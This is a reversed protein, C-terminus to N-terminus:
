FLVKAGVQIISLNFDLAKNTGLSGFTNSRMSPIQQYSVCLSYRNQITGTVQAMYGINVLRFTIPDVSTNPVEVTSNADLYFPVGVDATVEFNTYNSYLLTQIMPKVHIARWTVFTPDVAWKANTLGVDLQAGFLRTYKVKTSIGYSQVITTAAPIDSDKLQLTGTGVSAEVGVKFNRGHNFQKRKKYVPNKYANYASIAQGPKETYALFLPGGIIATVFKHEDTGELQISIVKGKKHYYNVESAQLTKRYRKYFFTVQDENTGVKYILDVDLTDGSKKIIYVKPNYKTQCNAFAFSFSLLIALLIFRNM